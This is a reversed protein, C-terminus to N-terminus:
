RASVPPEADDNDTVSNAGAALVLAGGVLVATAGVPGSLWAWFGTKAAAGGAQAPATATEGAKRDPLALTLDQREGARTVVPTAAVPTGAADVLLLLYRGAPLGSLRFRGREDTTTTGAPEKAGDPIAQVTLATAPTVLDTGFVRGTVKSMSAPAAVALPANALIMAVSM